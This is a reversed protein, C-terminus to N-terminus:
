RQKKVVGSQTVFGNQALYTRFSLRSENIRSCILGVVVRVKTMEYAKLM